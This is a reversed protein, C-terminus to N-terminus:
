SCDSQPFFFSKFIRLLLWISDVCSSGGGRNRPVTVISPIWAVALHHTGVISLAQLGYQHMDMKMKIDLETGYISNSACSADRPGSFKWPISRRRSDRCGLSIRCQHRYYVSGAASCSSFLSTCYGRIRQLLKRLAGM